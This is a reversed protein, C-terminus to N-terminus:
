GQEPASSTFNPIVNKSADAPEIEPWNGQALNINGPIDEEWFGVVNKTINLYLKDDVIRWLNPNGPVKGGKSVGYACHGDYQPAYYDPNAVFKDRNEASSFAFTAGNHDATYAANGPVAAPQASGVPNQALDRYAVVDYGSVAFGTSDIYQDGAFAPLGFSAAALAAFLVRKM